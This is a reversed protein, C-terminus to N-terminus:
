GGLKKLQILGHTELERLTERLEGLTPKGEVEAMLEFEQTSVGDRSRVLSRVQRDTLVVHYRECAEKIQEFRSVM